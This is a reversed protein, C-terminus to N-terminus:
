PGRRNGARRIMHAAHVSPAINQAEQMASKLAAWQEGTFTDLPGREELKKLTEFTLCGLAKVLVLRYDVDTRASAPEYDRAFVEADVRCPEVAPRGQLWAAGTDEFEVLRATDGTPIHVFWRGLDSVAISM